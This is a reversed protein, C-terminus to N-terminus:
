DRNKSIDWKHANPIPDEIAHIKDEHARKWVEGTEKVDEAYLGMASHLNDLAEGYEPALPLGDKIAEGHKKWFQATQEAFEPAHENFDMVARANEVEIAPTSNMADEAAEFPNPMTKHGKPAPRQQPRPPPPEDDVHPQPIRPVPKMGRNAHEVATLAANSHSRDAQSQEWRAKWAARPDPITINRKKRQTKTQPRRRSAGSPRTGNAPRKRSGTGGRHAARAARKNALGGPKRGGASRSSSGRKGFLGAGRKSGTGNSRSKPSGRGLLGRGKGGAKAGAATGGASSGRKGLAARARGLPGKAAAKRSPRSGTARSLAAKNKGLLGRGHGSGRPNGKGGAARRGKGGLPSGARSKGGANGKGKLLGGLRGKGRGGGPLGRGTRSGASRRSGGPLLSRLSGGGRGGGRAGPGRVGGSHLPSVRGPKRLGVKAAVGPAFRRAVMPAAVGATTVAGAVILGTTGYNVGVTELVGLGLPAAGALAAKPLRREPEAADDPPPPTAAPKPQDAKPPGPVRTPTDISM